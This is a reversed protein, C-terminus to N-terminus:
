QEKPRDPVVEFVIKSNDFFGGEEVDHVIKDGYGMKSLLALLARTDKDLPKSDAISKAVAKTLSAVVCKVILDAPTGDLLEAWEKPPHTVITELFRPDNLTHKIRTSWDLTGKKRGAPNGSKGPEFPHLNALKREEPTREECPKAKAAEIRDLSM